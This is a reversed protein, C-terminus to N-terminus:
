LRPVGLPLGGAVCCSRFGPPSKVDQRALEEQVRALLEIETGFRAEWTRRGAHFAVGHGGTRHHAACLGIVRNHPARQGMGLGSRLHHIEAPRGCIVCGLSAVCSLHARESTTM